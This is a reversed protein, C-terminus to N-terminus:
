RRRIERPRTTAKAGTMHAGVFEWEVILALTDDRIQRDSRSDGHDADVHGSEIPHGRGRFAPLDGPSEESPRYRLVKCAVRGTRSSTSTYLDDRYLHNERRNVAEVIEDVTTGELWPHRDSTYDGTGGRYLRLFRALGHLGLERQLIALGHREIDEDSMKELPKM